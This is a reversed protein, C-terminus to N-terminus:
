LCIRFVAARTCNSPACSSTFFGVQRVLSAASSFRSGFKVQIGEQVARLIAHIIKLTSADRQKHLERIQKVVQSSDSASIASKIPYVRHRLEHRHHRLTALRGKRGEEEGRGAVHKQQLVLDIPPDRGLLKTCVVKENKFACARVLINILLSCIIRAHQMLQDRIYSNSLTLQRRLSLLETLPLDKETMEGRPPTCLCPVPLVPAGARRRWCRRTTTRAPQTSLAPSWLSVYRVGCLSYYFHYLNVPVM